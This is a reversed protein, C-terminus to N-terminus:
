HRRTEPESLFDSGMAILGTYRNLPKGIESRYAEEEPYSPEDAELLTNKAYTFSGKLSAILDRSFAKNYEINLDVGQNKM